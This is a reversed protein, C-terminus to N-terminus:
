TKTILNLIKGPIYIIKTIEDTIKSAIKTDSKAKTLAEAETAVIALTIQGRLRGNIQVGITATEDLVLDPRHKPFTQQHISDREEKPDSEHWLEETLHPAFPALVKLFTEYSGKTLGEKEARNVFVMMASIATNFKFQAIDDAVKAITKHLQKTLAESPAATIHGALGYVRELFRRIGTIGGMDWPYNSGEYPGMFALYMKVADAGVLAVQRDPDIVNGKSKSMKNGDTGLILGRNIRRQYPEDHTTVGLDFLAKQWFRSYLLHLTTHESGGFYLDVPSWAEQAARSVPAEDNKNDLYRLFYWSSDLFTDMTEVEPRWGPGFIRETREKLVQSKALPPEGTPKFDVDDPLTWPLHEKPVAHPQGSPDYVIPIPAGWYRQRGVSWDHLRYTKKLRGGAHKTIAARAAESTLGNFSASGLLIGPGTYVPTETPLVRTATKKSNDEKPVEEGGGASNTKLNSEKSIVQKVPLKFKIAFAYDREDHAPVGMIAGTGYNALVYDAIYVPLKEGNAPSLATLGALEIGTKDRDDNLREREAQKATASIYATVEAQNKIAAKVKPSALLPHEPALVLYTTGYLTDPRTTFVTVTEGSSLKFDIEAGESCGIWQRQAEKIHEPWNIKNLDDILRDAYKTIRFYWQPLERKEVSSSCRECEITNIVQENAIVTQCGPCWNVVGVGRYAIDHEFFKTFMWQTWKYYEEDTSSTTKDWSFANGMSNLQQRMHAINKETWERPNINRKIAANEAPLGFADFGMPFIVQRGCMRMFRVYIDPVAFAYWHGLHLNGSPYPWEVLVYEKEKAAFREGVDYLGRKQWAQQWKKEITQNDFKKHMMLCSLSRTSIEGLSRRYSVM